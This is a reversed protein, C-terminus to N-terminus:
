NTRIAGRAVEGIIRIAEYNSFGEYLLNGFLEFLQAPTVKLIADDVPYSKTITRKITVSTTIGQKPCVGELFNVWEKDTIAKVM